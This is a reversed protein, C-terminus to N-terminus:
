FCVYGLLTFLKQPEKVVLHFDQIGKRETLIDQPLPIHYAVDEQEVFPIVFLLHPAPGHHKRGLFHEDELIRKAFVLTHFVLGLAEDTEDLLEISELAGSIIEDPANDGGM